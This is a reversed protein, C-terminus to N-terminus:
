VGHLVARQEVECVFSGFNPVGLLPSLRSVRVNLSRGCELGWRSFGWGLAKAVHCDCHANVDVPHVFPLRFVSSLRRVQSNSALVPVGDIPASAM